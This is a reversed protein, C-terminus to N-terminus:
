IPFRTRGDLSFTAALTSNSAILRTYHSTM